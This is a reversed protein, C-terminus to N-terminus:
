EMKLVNARINEIPVLKTVGEKVLRQRFKKVFTFTVLRIYNNLFEEGDDSGPWEGDSMLPSKGFCYEVSDGQSWVFDGGYETFRISFLRHQPDDYTYIRCKEFCADKFLDDIHQRGQDAEELIDRCEQGVEKMIASHWKQEAEELAQRAQEAEQRLSSVTDVEQHSTEVKIQKMPRKATRRM